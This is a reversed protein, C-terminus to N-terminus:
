PHHQDNTGVLSRLKPSPVNRKSFFFKVVNNSLSDELTATEVASSWKRMAPCHCGSCM